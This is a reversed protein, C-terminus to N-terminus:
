ANTPLSTMPHNGFLANKVGTLTFINNKDYCIRPSYFFPHAPLDHNIELHSSSSINQILPIISPNYRGLLRQWTSLLSESLVPKASLVRPLSQPLVSILASVVTCLDSIHLIQPNYLDDDITIIPQEGAIRRVIYQYRLTHDGPGLIIPLRLVHAKSGLTELFKEETLLKNYLYEITDSHSGPYLKSFEQQSIEHLRYPDLTNWASSICIYMNSSIYKYCSLDCAKYAIFDITLDYNEKPIVSCQIHEKQGTIHKCGSLQKPSRSYTTVSHGDAILRHAINFGIFRSGGLLLINMNLRENFDHDM